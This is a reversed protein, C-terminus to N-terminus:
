FGLVIGEECVKFSCYEVELPFIFFGSYSFRDLVLFSNRTVNGGRIEFEVTSSYYYFYSPLPMFVSVHVLSTSNFVRINFWEGKYVQNKTDIFVGFRYLPFFFVEEVFSILM